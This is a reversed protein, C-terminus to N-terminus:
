VSKAKRNPMVCVGVKKCKMQLKSFFFMTEKLDILFDRSKESELFCPRCVGRGGM